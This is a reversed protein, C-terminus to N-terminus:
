HRYAHYHLIVEIARKIAHNIPLIQRALEYDIGHLRMYSHSTVPVSFDRELGLLVEHWHLEHDSKITQCTVLERKDYKNKRASFGFLRCILGRYKYEACMGGNLSSPNYLFCQSTDITELRALWELAQNQEYLHQALPLFELVSAEIDNKFCCKGCGSRCTLRSWSQFSNIEKDLDDFVLEVERIKDLM